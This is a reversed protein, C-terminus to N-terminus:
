AERERVGLVYKFFDKVLEQAAEANYAAASLGYSIRM